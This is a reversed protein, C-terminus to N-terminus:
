SLPIVTINRDFIDSTGTNVKMEVQANYTSGGTLGSVFRYMPYQQNVDTGAATEIAVGDSAAAVVSGSGIVGGTRVAASVFTFNTGNSEYRAFWQVMVRGSTPAVFTTGCVNSGPSYSTSSFGTEDTAQDATKADPFDAARIIQGAAPM